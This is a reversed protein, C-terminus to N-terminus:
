FHGKSFPKVKMGENEEHGRKNEMRKSRVLGKAKYMYRLGGEGGDRM